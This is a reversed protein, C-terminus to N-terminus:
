RKPESAGIVITHELVQLAGVCPDELRMFLLTTTDLYHQRALTLKCHASDVASKTVYVPCLMVQIASGNKVRIPTTPRFDPCM